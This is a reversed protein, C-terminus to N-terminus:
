SEVCEPRTPIAGGKLTILGGSDLRWISDALALYRPNRTILLTTARRQQLIRELIQQGAEDLGADIEDLLLIPPNGLLARALMLRQRVGPPLKYGGEGIRTKLGKPLSAILDELDCERCLRELEAATARPQRYSLNRAFSGQLLPLELSAIGVNRRISELTCDALDQGDITVRGADPILLGTAATLLTSKGSGNGGAVV